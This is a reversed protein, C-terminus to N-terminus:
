YAEMVVQVPQSGTLHTVNVTRTTDFSEGYDPTYSWLTSGGVIVKVRFNLTAFDPSQRMQFAFTLMTISTVDLTQTVGALDGTGIDAKPGEVEPGVVIVYEGDPPTWQTPKMRGANYFLPSLDGVGM